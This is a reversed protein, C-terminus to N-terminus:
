VGVEFALLLVALLNNFAHMIMPAWLSGTKHRVIGLILGLVFISAIEFLGYQVHFGAWILSTVIITGAVGIGSRSFGAFLFGRFLLEEFVPAFVVVAIWFLTPWVSTAYAQVMIDSDPPRDLGMNILASLVIFAVTIALVAMVTRTGISKLGLYDAISAGRRVKIIVFILGICVIASAVISLSLLLGLDIVEMWETFDLEPFDIPTETALKAIIFIVAIIVQIVVSVFMVLVGWGATAWFGWLRKETIENEILSNV